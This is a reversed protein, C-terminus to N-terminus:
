RYMRHSAPRGSWQCLPVSPARRLPRRRACPSRAIAPGGSLRRFRLDFLHVEGEIFFLLFQATDGLGKQIFFGVRFRDPFGHLGFEAEIRLEPFLDSLFETPRGYLNWLGVPAQTEAM